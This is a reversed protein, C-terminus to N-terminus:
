ARALNQKEKDIRNYFDDIHSGDPLEVKGYKTVAADMEQNVKHMALQFEKPAAGNSHFIRGSRKDAHTEEWLGM